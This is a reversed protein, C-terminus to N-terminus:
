GGGGVCVVELGEEAKEVVERERERESEVDREKDSKRMREMAMTSNFDSHFHPFHNNHTPLLICPSHSM